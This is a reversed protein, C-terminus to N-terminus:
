DEDSEMSIFIEKKKFEKQGTHKSYFKSSL